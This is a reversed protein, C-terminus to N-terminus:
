QRRYFYNRNLQSASISLSFLMMNEMSKHGSPIDDSTVFIGSFFIFFIQTVTPSTLLRIGTFSLLTSM